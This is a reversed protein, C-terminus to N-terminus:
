AGKIERLCRKICQDAYHPDLGALLSVTVFDANTAGSEMWARATDRERTFRESTLGADQIAQIFVASWLAALSDDSGKATLETRPEYRKRSVKKM